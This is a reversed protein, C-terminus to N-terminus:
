FCKCYSFEEDTEDIWSDQARHCKHLFPKRIKLEKLDDRLRDLEELLEQTVHTNPYLSATHDRIEKEREPKL